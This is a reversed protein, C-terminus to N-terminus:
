YRQIFERWQIIASEFDELGCQAMSESEYLSLNADLEIDCGSFNTNDQVTVEYNSMSVMREEGTWVWEKAPYQHAQAILELIHDIKTCDQAMNEQLWRAIIQHEMSSRVFYEGLLTNKTFEFEM